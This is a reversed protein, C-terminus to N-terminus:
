PHLFAFRRACRVLRGRPLNLVVRREDNRNSPCAGLPSRGAVRAPRLLERSLDVISICPAKGATAM